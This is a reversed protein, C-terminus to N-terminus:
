EQRRQWIYPTWLCTPKDRPKRKQERSRYKQRQALVMSNQHSYSQILAQLWTPQNKWKWEEKALNSQAIGAKRYKWVFQSALQELEPFFVMPLKIPIASFRYIAKHQTSMKVINIMRIWSCPINRWRDTHDKIEKKLAKCNEIYQDKRPDDLCCSLESFVDIEAKNVIVFGKVTHVVIFQPFYQFLCSYCVVQGAEQSVQICTHFCCNSTSM